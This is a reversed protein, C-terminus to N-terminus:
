RGAGIEHNPQFLREPDYADRAARLRAASDPDFCAEPVTAREVFSLYHGVEYAATAAAVRALDEESRAAAEPAALGVAFSAFQGPLSALAGHGPRSRGLAGGTHRLEVSLLGCGSDPGAAALLSDIAAAPLSGLLAHGSATPAPERPDMHLEAIGAPPVTAFTDMAPGLACLPAILERGAAEPGLFVAEVLAYSRGRLHEPVQPLPPFRLLRGVSTVEEPVTATWERWAHLAEAAREIPFFLAGAFVAPIPLLEFELATVVGFNGGGGRLAWFLEPEAAGDVQRVEGDATVLEIARVRDAALGHRRAYWGMGGGLTYGAISVDPTSGHLAALGLESATPVVDQWRAGAGVRALRAAGDVHARDLRDTKLLVTGDLPGLPGANHGTGRPAVRLGEARAFRVVAAVAERDHPEAILAPRQDVTLNFTRRADEYGADGFALVPGAILRRLAGARAARPRTETSDMPDEETPSPAGLLEDIAHMLGLRGSFARTVGGSDVAHGSLGNGAELLELKITHTRNMAGLIRVLAGDAM